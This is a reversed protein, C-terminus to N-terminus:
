EYILELAALESSLKRADCIDWIVSGYRLLIVVFLTVRVPNVVCLDGPDFGLAHIRDTHMTLELIKM